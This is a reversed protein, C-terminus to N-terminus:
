AQLLTWAAYEGLSMRNPSKNNSKYIKEFHPILTGDEYSTLIKPHIYYQKCVAVTNGLNDAVEDFAQSVFAKAEGESDPSGLQYLVAGAITTGGWTRFDKASMDEGAITQLYENVDRSDIARKGLEKDVYQFLEYGPLEICKKITKAVRPHTVDLEHYVGSKGRFNFKITNGRVKVHKGRLTTLGYSDNEKEYTKNGVRIFTNELLWVATALIQKRTLEEQTMHRYVTQRLKPLVEGFRIMSDFKHQQQHAAWDPNYVYQKRGKDDYGIAQIHGDDSPCIRVDVWAPPISLKEVKEVEESKLPNGNKNLYQFGRGVKNRIWTLGSKSIYRIGNKTKNM